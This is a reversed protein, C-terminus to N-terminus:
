GLSVTDSAPAPTIRPHAQKCSLYTKKAQTQYGLVTQFLYNVDAQKQTSFHERLEQHVKTYFDRKKDCDPQMKLARAIAMCFSYSSQIYTSHSNSQGGFAIVPVREAHLEAIYLASHALGSALRNLNVVNLQKQEPNQVDPQESGVEIRSDFTAAANAFGRASALAIPISRPNGKIFTIFSEEGEYAHKAIAGLTKCIQCTGQPLMKYGGQAKLYREIFSKAWSAYHAVAKLNFTKAAEDTLQQNHQSTM